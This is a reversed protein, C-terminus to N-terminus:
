KKNGPGPTACIYNFGKKCDVQEWLGYVSEMVACDQSDSLFALFTKLFLKFIQIIKCGRFDNFDFVTGDIWNWQGKVTM